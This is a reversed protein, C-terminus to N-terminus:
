TAGSSQHQQLKIIFTWILAVEICTCTRIHLISMAEHCLHINAYSRHLHLKSTAEHINAHSWHSHLTLTAEHSWSHQCPKLAFSTNIYSWPLSPHRCPKPAFSNNIYSWPLSPHWFSKLAFSPMIEYYICSSNSWPLFHIIAHSWYFSLHQCPKITFVRSIAANCLSKLHSRQFSLHQHLKIELVFALVVEFDFVLLLMM